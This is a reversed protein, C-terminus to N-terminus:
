IDPPRGHTSCRQDDITGPHPTTPARIPQDVRLVKSEILRRSEAMDARLGETTVQLRVLSAKVRSINEATNTIIKAAEYVLESIKFPKALPPFDHDTLKALADPQGTCLLVPINSNAARRALEYGSIQSMGFDIIALDFSATEIAEVGLMGTRACKVAAALEAELVHILDCDGPDNEIVLIATM